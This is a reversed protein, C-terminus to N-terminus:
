QESLNICFLLFFCDGTIVNRNLVSTVKNSPHTKNWCVLPLISYLTSYDQHLQRLSAKTASVFLPWTVIVVSSASLPFLLGFVFVVASQNNYHLLYLWGNPARGQRPSRTCYGSCLREHCRDAIAAVVDIPQRDCFTTNTRRFVRRRYNEFVKKKAFGVYHVKIM